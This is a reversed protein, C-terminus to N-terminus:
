LRLRIEETKRSSHPLSHLNKKSSPVDKKSLVKCANALCPFWKEDNNFVYNWVTNNTATFWVTGICRSYWSNSINREMFNCSRLEWIRHTKHPPYKTSAVVITSHRWEQLYKMSAIKPLQHLLEPSSGTLHIDKICDNNSVTKTEKYWLKDCNYRSIDECSM